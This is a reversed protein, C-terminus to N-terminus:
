STLTSRLWSGARRIADDAVGTRGATMQFTHVQGAFEDLRADVGADRLRKALRRSDDVLSEEAGAQLYTAPLGHVDAHVPAALPDHPDAGALYRAGLARV